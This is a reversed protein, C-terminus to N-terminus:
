KTGAQQAPTSKKSTRPLFGHPTAPVIQWTSRWFATAAVWPLLLTMLVPSTLVALAPQWATRALLYLCWWWVLSDGFHTPHRTWGFLGEDMVRGRHGPNAKFRAPQHDGVAGFAPGAARLALGGRVAVAFAAHVATLATAATAALNIDLAGRDTGNM